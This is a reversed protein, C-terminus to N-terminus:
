PGNLVSVAVSCFCVRGRTARTPVSVDGQKVGAVVALRGYWCVLGSGM